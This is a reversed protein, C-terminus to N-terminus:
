KAADRRRFFIQSMKEKQLPYKLRVSREHLAISCDHLVAHRQVAQQLRAACRPAARSAANLTIPRLNLKVDFICTMAAFPKNCM